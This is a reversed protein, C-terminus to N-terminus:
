RKKGSPSVLIQVIPINGFRASRKKLQSKSWGKGTKLDIAFLPKFNHFVVVDVGLSGKARRSTEAGHNDFFVEAKISIKRKAWRKNFGKSFKNIKREFISHAKTGKISKSASSLAKDTLVDYLAERAFLVIQNGVIGVSKGSAGKAARGVLARQLASQTFGRSSTALVGRVNFSAGLGSLTVNGSPDTNNVADSHAYAYKHLTAPEHRRGQFSDMQTFRGVGQSYYRARLYYQGLNADFQEGAFLYSNDTSGTQNLLEGFAEYNYTDSIAGTGDSLSRTSGLGDYHYLSEVGDLTQSILDDGYVYDRTSSGDSQRIVQAYDRNADILFDTASGAETKGTRIGDTNYVYATTGSANSSEVLEHQSNYSYTTTNGDLTESLTNGQSDYSYSTGGHQTLRNNEDYSYATTVGAIISETRNGVADYSYSANYDGNVGDTISESVLRYVTDYGYRTSRGSAEDIRTRRGTPHLTYDFQQLTSNGSDATRLQTLRNREDYVYSTQNGNHYAMTSRNGVADYSYSSVNGNPDTVQSLRNLADYGYRIIQTLAGDTVSLQTKNGAGDYSYALVTGDPKTESVLRNLEDYSYSWSQTVGGETKSAATRNGEADYSFTEQSGDAYDSQILRNNVDFQHTTTDGNFDTHSTMNGVADYSMTEFQGLPLERRIARGLADYEWRTLNNNADIEVLKNGLEDYEYQTVNGTADTVNVLRGLEDYAFLTQVGAEDINEIRRGLADYNVFVQDGTQFVTSVRQDLSNLTFLTFVGNADVEGVVNGDGDYMMTHTNGLAGLVEVRRNAEDYTYSTRNGNGDVDALLRGAADYESSTTSGDPHLTAVLRNLADYSFSTVRGLRDTTSIRNNEADYSHSTSTGDAYRTELLNGYVDYDMETRRGLADIQATEQGALNYESRTENGLPDTTSVLRNRSDYAFVTTEPTPIGFFSRNITESVVNNNADYTYSRSNSQADLETLKNGESDYTYSSANGAADTTSSVLGEANINNGAINGLPDTVSLLNGVSDYVNQYVNGRADRIQTEQGRANYSFQLENGLADVQTLQDNNGNYTATSTNGLPDTVSLQNDRADFSYSTTDGLADTQTLVNGREDYVILTSNGNRDTVVSQRGAVDHSFDTRVGNEDEQAILRGSADYINRVLRRGLPDFMDVLGHESNYAYSSEAGDRETVSELDGNTDYAYSISNGAPDTVAVIRGESDRTFSVSKGSSHVIGSSSYTLTHGNPDIIQEVGLDQDLFYQYGARTTLRYRSPDVPQSFSGDEMLAGNILRATNDNLAELTSQTDGVPTFNLTVDLIPVIDNCVPDAAIEFREVDGNPLTVTVLPAGQPEVCYRLLTGLPGTAYQNLQWFEGPTRSEHLRVNQYDVSWGYGFDLSQHKQRTDYTRSVVIPIGALPVNIDEITFSFNGVKLDGDVTLVTAAQATNGADDFAELVITYQGNIRLSPDFEAAVFDEGTAAGEALVFFEGPGAGREQAVLRWGTLDGDDTVSIRVERPSSIEDGDIPQLISVEPANSSGPERISFTGAEVVTGTADTVTAQVSHEGLTNEIVQAQYNADLAVPIGDVLLEVTFPEVANIPTASITVASGQVAIAPTIALNLALLGGELVELTFTQEAFGGRGDEVRVTATQLGLQATTPTWTIVGDASIVMGTPASALQYSLADGDPDIAQVSYQYEQGTVAIVGHTSTIAPSRNPMSDLVTLQYSQSGFLGEPDAARVEVDHAGVDTQATLWTLLGTTENISMGAPAQFLSYSIDDGDADSATVQYQYTEGSNVSTPPTSNIEPSNNGFVVNIAFNQTTSFIGDSVSVTVNFTGEATPTWMILGTAPNIAMGEPATALSYTLPDGDADSADADYVFPELPSSGVSPTSIFEPPNNTTPLVTVTFSRSRPGELNQAAVQVTHSGATGYGPVWRIVGTAPDITMGKPGGLIYFFLSHTIDDVTLLDIDIEFLEGETVQPVPSPIRPTRPRDELTVGLLYTQRAAAGDHDTIRIDVSHSSTTNNEAYCEAETEPITVHVFLEGVYDDPVVSGFNVAQTESRALGTFTQSALQAGSSPEGAYLSVTYSDTYDATGRNFVETSVSGRYDGLPVDAWLDALGDLFLGTSPLVVQDTNFTEWHNGTDPRVRLGSDLANAQWWDQHMYNQLAPTSHSGSYRRLFVTRSGVYILEAKADRDVDVLLPRYKSDASDGGYVLIQNGTLGDFIQVGGRRNLIVEQRGDDQLDAALATFGHARFEGTTRWLEGGNRDLMVEESALFIELQGDGNMDAIVPQGAYSQSIPGWIFSGDNDVLSVTVADADLASQEVYVMEPEDDADFNAFASFGLSSARDDAFAVRWIQTGTHDWVAGAQVLEKDGDLDIDVPYIPSPVGSITGNAPEPLRFLLDGTSSFVAYAALIETNGDGDLDALSVRGYRYSQSGAQPRENSRWLERGDDSSIALLTRRTSDVLVIDPVSDNNIDAIAPMFTESARLGLAELSLTRIEAGSTADLIALITQSGSNYATLISSNDAGNVLGDGNTDQLPFALAYEGMFSKDFEWQNTFQVAASPADVLPNNCLYDVTKIRRPSTGDVAGDSWNLSVQYRDLYDTNGLNKIEARLGPASTLLEVDFTERVNADAIEPSYIYFDDITAIETPDGAIDPAENPRDGFVMFTIVDTNEFQDAVILTVLRLRDLDDDTPSWLLSGNTPDITMGTPQERLSYTLQASPDSEVSPLYQFTEGIVTRFSFPNETFSPLLYSESVALTFSQTDSAGALDTVTISFDQSGIESSLPHYIFEGTDADISASGNGILTFQHDDGVDIDLVTPQYTYIQGTAAITAPESVINPPQNVNTVAITFTQDSSANNSDTASIRVLPITATNNDSKCENTVTDFQATFQNTTVDGSIPIILQLSQGVELVPIEGTGAVAEASVTLLTSDASAALGRNSVTLRAEWNNEGTENVRFETITLDSQQREAQSELTTEYLSTTLARRLSISDNVPDAPQGINRLNWAGGGTALATNILPELWRSQYYGSSELLKSQDFECYEFGGAGDAVYARGDAALGLIYRSDNDCQFDFQTIVNVTYGGEILRQRFAELEEEGALEGQQPEDPIWILNRATGSRFSYNDITHQLALLANENGGLNPNEADFTAEYLEAISGFLGGDFEQPLARNSFYNLGYRNADPSIGIGVNQLDVNLLAMADAIWPWAENNSGSGDVVMVSDMAAPYTEIESAPIRCNENQLTSSGIYPAQPLWSVEGTVPDISMGEPGVDLAYSVADGDPDTAQVNYTYAQGEVAGANPNSTIEPAANSSTVTITVTAENSNLEGDSAQYTFTDTGSFGANPTYTFPNDPGSVSGNEPGGIVEYTLDASDIDDGLLTIGVSTGSDTTVSVDAAIPADNVESVTLEVTAPDSDLNGDNVTFTFSDTGNFDQNPTYTLAPLTGSLTGSVPSDQISYTISDGDPDAGELSVNIPTDEIAQLQQGLAGPADNVAIVTVTVTATESFLLGDNVRFTFSDTGNFNENPTYSLSPAVGGLTGSLPQSGLEFALEDGDPDNGSLTIPLLADETVQLSQSNAVPADNTPLVTLTITAAQSTLQGDSVRYTFSDIGSFDPAPTYNLTPAIGSLTGTAPQSLLEYFLADGDADIGGLTIARTSDENLELTQNAGAPADNVPSVIITIQAPASTSQGDDVTFMFSDSGNFNAAPTYMLSPAVGSLSGNSPNSVVSFSLVDGDADSGTLDLQLTVDEATSVQQTDAVPPTNTGIVEVVFSQTNSAGQSDAVVVTFENPGIATSSPIWTVTGTTSDISAGVPLETATYTVQDGEPDSADIEYVYSTGVTGTLVPTSTIIPASNPPPMTNCMGDNRAASIVRGDDEAKSHRHHPVDVTVTGTCQGFRNKAMFDIHYVRGDGSGDRQKRLKATSSGIGKATYQTKGKKNTRLPEDQTICQVTVWPKHGGVGKIRVTSYRNNPPWLASPSAHANDCQPVKNGHGGGHHGGGHHGGGQQGGGQYGGGRTNRDYRSREGYNNQNAVMLSRYNSPEPQSSTAIGAEALTQQPIVTLLIATCFASLYASRFFHM